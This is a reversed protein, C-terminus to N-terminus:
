LFKRYPSNPEIKYAELGNAYPGAFNIHWGPLPVPPTLEEGTEEDYTPPEYITGVVDMAWGLDATKYYGPITEIVEGTEEDIIVEEPIYHGDAQLVPQAEAEDTFRFYTTITM